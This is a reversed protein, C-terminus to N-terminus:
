AGGRARLRWLGWLALIVALGLAAFKAGTVIGLMAVEGIEHLGNRLLSAVFDNELLDFGAYALAPLCWLWGLRRVPLMLTASLALLLVTDAQHLPGLYIAKAAPTLGALYTRAEDFSYLHLDFPPLDGVYVQAAFYQWVGYALAAAIPLAWYLVRM